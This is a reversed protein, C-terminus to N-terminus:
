DDVQEGGQEPELTQEADPVQVQGVPKVPDEHSDQASPKKPWSALWAWLITRITILTNLSQVISTSAQEM